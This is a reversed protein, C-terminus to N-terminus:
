CDRVVFLTGRLQEGFESGFADLACLFLSLLRDAILYVFNYLPLSAALKSVFAANQSPKRSFEVRNFNGNLPPRIECNEKPTEDKLKM